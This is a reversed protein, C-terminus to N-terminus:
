TPTIYVCAYERLIGEKDEKRFQEWVGEEIYVCTKCEHNGLRTIADDLSVVDPGQSKEAPMEIGVKKLRVRVLNLDNEGPTVPANNATRFGGDPSVKVRVPEEMSPSRSRRRPPSRSRMRSPRHIPDMLRCVSPAM